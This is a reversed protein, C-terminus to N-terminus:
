EEIFYDSDIKKIEYTAAVSVGVNYDIMLEALQEGDILIINSTITDVYARAGSSFNSTTIFVGKRAQKGLLAGAFAQLEPRGVTAEWRKAQLYIVDLGLRDEKITGDIGGDGSKGVAKGADELTGGYGMKVLLEVVLREFFSPSCSKVTDIVESALTKRITEYSEYLLEDPTRITEPQLSPEIAKVDKSRSLQRFEIYEPYTNLLSLDIKKLHKQLLELGRSTIRFRGRGTNDIIAAKKLHTTSWCIRNYLRTQVGSPIREKLDDDSLNLSTGLRALMESLSHENGDGLMELLPLMITQFDPVAM